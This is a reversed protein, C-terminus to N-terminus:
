NGMMGSGQPQMTQSTPSTPSVRGILAGDLDARAMWFDRLADIYVTVGIVQARADALLDFVSILMGNYRLQNEDAIFKRIPVVEDRQHKAIDYSTRYGLYAKRVESRANVAAEAALNVAQMYIAEAKAVRATGWDFIPIQFSVTFGKRYPDSRAGELVRAPGLDLVDIFSTARTLGLNRAVAETQGRVVQLDLRSQMASSEVDPLDDVVKPLDPLRAPLRYEIQQGWLGMLSTLEERATAQALRARALGQTADAYFGQERAQNLKSWNGAQVMRRALGASAEAATRVQEMYRVTEDAGVAMFYAKRTAMARELVEIAVLRQTREFKIREVERAYPLTVLSLINITLAEDITYIGGASARTLSFKPNPLIGAQVFDAESIKLEQLAAQLGKNNILALQVAGDVTLPKGLLETVRAEILVKDSDSRAWQVDQGLREKVTREVTGLGHDDSFTACGGLVLAVVTIITTRRAPISAGAPVTMLNDKNMMM